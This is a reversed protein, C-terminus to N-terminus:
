LYFKGVGQTECHILIDYVPSHIVHVQMYVTLSGILFPVNRALGLSPDVISNTSHMNVLITPDYPLALTHCCDESM